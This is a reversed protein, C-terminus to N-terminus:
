GIGLEMSRLFRRAHENRAGYCYLSPCLFPSPTRSRNHPISRPSTRRCRPALQEVLGPHQAVGTRTAQKKKRRASGRSPVGHSIRSLCPRKCSKSQWLLQPQSAKVATSWWFPLPWELITPRPSAHSGPMPHGRDPSRRAQRERWKYEPFRPWSGPDM